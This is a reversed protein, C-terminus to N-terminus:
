PRDAKPPRNVPVGIRAEPVRLRLALVPEAPPKGARRIRAREREREFGAPALGVVRRLVADPEPQRGAPLSPLRGGM